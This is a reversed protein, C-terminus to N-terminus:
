SSLYEFSKEFGETGEWVLIESCVNWEEWGRLVSGTLDADVRESKINWIGTWMISLM